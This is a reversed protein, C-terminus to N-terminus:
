LSKGEQELGKYEQNNYIFDVEDLEEYIQRYTMGIETGIQNGARVSSGTKYLELIGSPDSFESCIYTHNCVASISKGSGYLGSFFFGAMVFGRDYM